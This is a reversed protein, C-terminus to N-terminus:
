GRTHSYPGAANIQGRPQYLQFLPSPPTRCRVPPLIEGLNQDRVDQAPLGPRRPRLVPILLPLPRLQLGPLHLANNSDPPGVNSCLVKRDVCCVAKVMPPPNPSGKVVFRSTVHRAHHHEPRTSISRWQPERLATSIPPSMRLAPLWRPAVATGTERRWHSAQIM